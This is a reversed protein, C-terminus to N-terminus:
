RANADSAPVSPRSPRQGVVDRRRGASPFLPVRRGLKGLCRPCDEAIPSVYARRISLACTPCTVYM